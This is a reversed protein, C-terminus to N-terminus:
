PNCYDCYRPDEVRKVNRMKQELGCHTCRYTYYLPSLTEAQCLDCPLGPEYGQICIGPGLCHPCVVQLQKVLKEGLIALHKMRTPNMMARMDTEVWVKSETKMLSLFHSELMQWDRIGKFVLNTSVSKLILGHSPFLVQQAFAQLATWSEVEAHAFNTNNSKSYVMFEWHNRYDKLMLIEENCSAFWLDPDRGFSGESALVLDIKHQEYGHQCKERVTELPSGKREVEGSFTGFQDTNLGSFVKVNVRLRSELIPALAVEKKHDTAILLTRNRFEEM